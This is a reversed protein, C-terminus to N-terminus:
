MQFHEFTFLSQGQATVEWIPQDVKPPIGPQESTVNAGGM